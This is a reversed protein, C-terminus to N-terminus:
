CNEWVKPSPGIGSPLPTSSDSQRCLHQSAGPQHRELDVVVVHGALTDDSNFRCPSWSRARRTAFAGLGLGRRCQKPHRTQAPARSSYSAGSNPLFAM